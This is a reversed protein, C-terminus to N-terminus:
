VGGKRCRFENWLLCVYEGRKKITFGYKNVNHVNYCGEWKHIHIKMGPLCPKREKILVGNLMYYWPSYKPLEQEIIYDITEM